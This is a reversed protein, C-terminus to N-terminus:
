SSGDQEGAAWLEALEEEGGTLQGTRIQIRGGERRLTVLFITGDDPLDVGRLRRAIKENIDSLARPAM